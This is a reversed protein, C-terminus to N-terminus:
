AVVRNYSKGIAECRLTKRLVLREVINQSREVTAVTSAQVDEAPIGGATALDRDHNSITGTGSGCLQILSLDRRQATCAVM